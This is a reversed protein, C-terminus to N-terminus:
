RGRRRRAADTDRCRRPSPRGVLRVHRGHRFAQLRDNGYDANYVPRGRRRRSRGHRQAARRGHRARRDDASPARRRDFRQIDDRVFDGVYVSGDAGVALDFPNLFQGTTPDSAAGHASSRATPTSNSSATMSRTPSTSLGTPRSPSAASPASTPCRPTRSSTSSVTAPAVSAGAAFSTATPALDRRDRRHGRQRCLPERGTRCRPRVATLPGRDVDRGLDRDLELTPVLLGANLGDPREDRLLASGVIVLSAVLAAVVLGTLLLIWAGRLPTATASRATILTMPLWREIFTWAPRQPTARVRGVLDDRYDARRGAVLDEFADALQGPSFTPPRETPMM